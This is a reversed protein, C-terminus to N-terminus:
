ETVVSDTRVSCHESELFTNTFGNFVAKLAEPKIKSRQQVFASASPM